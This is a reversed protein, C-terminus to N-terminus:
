QHFLENSNTQRKKLILKATKYFVYPREKNYKNNSIEKTTIIPENGVTNKCEFLGLNIEM